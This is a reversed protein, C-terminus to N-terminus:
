NWLSILFSLDKLWSLAERISLAEATRPDFVGAFCGHVAAISEGSDNRVICGFGMRPPSNFIAAEVNCKLFVDNRNSWISWLVVAAKELDSKTRNTVLDCWWAKFSIFSGVYSDISTLNWVERAVPCLILSHFDSEPVNLCIPCWDGIDVRGRRLAVRTPLCDSLVRWIFNKVKPPINLRWLYLWNIGLNQPIWGRSLQLLKYGSKVSYVENREAGWM